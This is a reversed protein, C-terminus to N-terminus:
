IFKFVVTLQLTIAVALCVLWGLWWRISIGLQRVARYYFGIMTVVCAILSGFFFGPSNSIQLVAALIYPILICSGVLCVFGISRLFDFSKKKLFILAFLIQIGWKGGAISTSLIMQESSVYLPCLVVFWWTLVTSLGFYLIFLFLNKSRM